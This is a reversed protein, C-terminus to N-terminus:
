VVFTKANKVLYHIGELLADGVQQLTANAAFPKIRSAVLAAGLKIQAHVLPM